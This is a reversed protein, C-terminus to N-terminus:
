IFDIGIFKALKFLHFESDHGKFPSACPVSIFFQRILQLSDYKILVHTRTYTEM